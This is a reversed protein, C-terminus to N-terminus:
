EVAEIEEVDPVEIAADRDRHGGAPRTEERRPAVVTPGALAHAVLHEVLRADVKVFLMRLITESLQLHQRIGALAAAPLRFYALWYTGKKHGKVSYALRREEWLRSVM